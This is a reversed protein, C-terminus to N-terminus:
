RDDIAAPRGAAPLWVTLRTGGEPTIPSDARVGGGMLAALEAVIALGLGTGVSRTRGRGSTFHPEFVRALDAPAIGPGDDAVWLVVTADRQQAGMVIQNSAFNLANELLNNLVQVLRDGDTQVWPGGAEPLARRLDLGAAAAQPGQSGAVRDIVASVDVPVPHYSFRGADLRALDLLDGVLRELRAAEASIVGVAGGVDDTTGDAIAEAYGRISTLPTRLDHSVSLLFQRQLRRSETLGDGMENIARALTAFEPLDRSSVAMRAELDGGAIRATADAATRLPRAFRRAMSSAVVAAVGLVVLAVLLFYGIGNVQHQVPRIAVLVAEDEYPVAPHFRSKEATTLGPMPILVYVLNATGGAVASGTVLSQKRLDLGELAVPLTTFTGTADLGLVKLTDYQGLEKRSLVQLALFFPTPPLEAIAKAETYLQQQATHQAAQRVFFLSGLATLVLTGAVLALMAVTLRTRV